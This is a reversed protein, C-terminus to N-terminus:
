PSPIHAPHFLPGEPSPSPLGHPHLASFACPSPNSSSPPLLDTHGLSSLPGDAPCLFILTMASRLASHTPAATYHLRPAARIERPGKEGVLRLTWAKPSPSAPSHVQLVRCYTGQTKLLIGPYSSPSRRCDAELMWFWAIEHLLSLQSSFGLCRTM